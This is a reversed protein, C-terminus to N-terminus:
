GLLNYEMSRGDLTGMLLYHICYVSVFYEEYAGRVVSSSKFNLGNHEPTSDM